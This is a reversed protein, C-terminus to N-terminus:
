LPFVRRALHYAGYLTLMRIEMSVDCDSVVLGPHLFLLALLRPVCGGDRGGVMGGVMVGVWGRAIERAVEM